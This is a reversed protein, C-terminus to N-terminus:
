FIVCERLVVHLVFCSQVELRHKNKHLLEHSFIYRTAYMFDKPHPDHEKPGRCHKQPRVGIQRLLEYVVWTPNKLERPAGLVHWTNNTKILERLQLNFDPQKVDITKFGLVCNNEPKPDRDCREVPADADHVFRFLDYLRHVATSKISGGVAKQAHQRFQDVNFKKDFDVPVPPAVARLAGDRTGLVANRAASIKSPVISFDLYAFDIEPLDGDSQDPSCQVRFCQKCIHRRLKLLVDTRAGSKHMWVDRGCDHRTLEYKGHEPVAGCVADVAVDGPVNAPLPVPWARKSMCQTALSRVMNLYREPYADLSWLAQMESPTVAFLTEVNQAFACGEGVCRRVFDECLMSYEAPRLRRSFCCECDTQTWCCRRHVLKHTRQSGRAGGSSGRAAVGHQIRLRCLLAHLFLEDPELHMSPQLRADEHEARLFQEIVDPPRMLAPGFYKKGHTSYLAEQMARSNLAEQWEHVDVARAAALLEADARVLMTGTQSCARLSQTEIAERVLPPLDPVFKVLKLMAAQVREPHLNFVSVPPHAAMRGHFTNPHVMPLCMSNLLVFWQNSPEELAKRLLVLIAPNSTAPVSIEPNVLLDRFLPDSVRAPDEAYVYVTYGKAPAQTLWARWIHVNRIDDNEKLVVLLAVSAPAHVGWRSELAGSTDCPAKLPASSGSGAATANAPTNLKIASRRAVGCWDVHPMQALLAACDLKEAGQGGVTPETTPRDPFPWAIVHTLRREVRKRLMVVFAKRAASRGDNKVECQMKLGDWSVTVSTTDNAYRQYEVRVGRKLLECVLVSRAKDRLTKDHAEYESKPLKEDAWGIWIGFLCFLENRCTQAKGTNESASSVLV